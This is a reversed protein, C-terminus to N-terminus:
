TSLGEAGRAATGAYVFVLRGEFPDDCYGPNLKGLKLEGDVLGVGVVVSLAAAFIAFSTSGPRTSMLVPM